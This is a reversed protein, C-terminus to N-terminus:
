GDHLISVYIEVRVRDQALSILRPAAKLHCAAQADPSIFLVDCITKAHFRARGLVSWGGDVIKDNHLLTVTSKDDQPM